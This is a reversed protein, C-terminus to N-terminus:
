SKLRSFEQKSKGVGNRGILGYRHGKVIDMPSDALLENGAFQLSVSHLHISDLNQTSRIGRGGHGRGGWLVGKAQCDKWASDHDGALPTTSMTSGNADDTHDDSGDKDDNNNKGSRKRNHRRQRTSEKRKARKSKSPSSPENDDRSTGEASEQTDSRFSKIITPESSLQADFEKSPSRSNQMDKTISLIRTSIEHVDDREGLIQTIMEIFRDEEYGNDLGKSLGSQLSIYDSLYSSIYDLVEPSDQLDPVNELM